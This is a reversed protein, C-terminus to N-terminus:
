NLQYSSFGFITTDVTFLGPCLSRSVFSDVIIVNKCNNTDICFLGSVSTDVSPSLYQSVFSGVIIVNKCNNTSICFLGSVSTDVTYPTNNRFVLSRQVCTRTDVRCMVNLCEIVIM